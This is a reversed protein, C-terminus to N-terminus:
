RQHLQCTVYLSNAQLRVNGIQISIFFLLNTFKSYSGCSLWGSATPSDWPPFSSRVTAYRAPPRIAGEPP